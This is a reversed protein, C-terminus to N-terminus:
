TMEAHLLGRSVQRNREEEREGSNKRRTGRAVTREVTVSNHQMRMHLFTKFVM